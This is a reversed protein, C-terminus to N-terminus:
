VEYRWIGDFFTIRSPAVAVLSTGTSEERKLSEMDTKVKATHLIYKAFWALFV